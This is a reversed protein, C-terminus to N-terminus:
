SRAGTSQRRLTRGRALVSLSMACTVGIIAMAVGVPSWIHLYLTAQALLVLLAGSFGMAVVAALLRDRLALVTVFAAGPAVLLYSGVVLVRVPDARLGTEGPLIVWGLVVGSWILLAAAGTLRPNM